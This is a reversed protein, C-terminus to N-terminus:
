TGAQEAGGASGALGGEASGALGGIAEALIARADHGAAVRAAEAVCKNQTTRVFRALQELYHQRRQVILSGGYNAGVSYEYEVALASAMRGRHRDNRRLQAMDYLLDAQSCAQPACLFRAM